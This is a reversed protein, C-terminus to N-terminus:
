LRNFSDDFHEPLSFKFYNIKDIIMVTILVPFLLVLIPASFMIRWNTPLRKPFINMISSAFKRSLYDSNLYGEKFANVGKITGSLKIDDNRFGTHLLQIIVGQNKTLFDFTIIIERDNTNIIIKFNNADKTQYLIRADLIKYKENVSLKVPDKPAIDNEDITENGRNWFAIKTATLNDIKKDDYFFKLKEILIARVGIINFSGKVFCLQKDRKSKLYFIISLSIGILAFLLFIINIPELIKDMNVELM